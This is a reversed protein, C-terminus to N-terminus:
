VQSALYQRIEDIVEPNAIVKKGSQKVSFVYFVRGGKEKTFRENAARNQEIWQHSMQPNFFSMPKIQFGVLVDGRQFYFDVAYRSDWEQSATMIEIGLERELKSYITEIETQYGDFTRHLVVYFVYEICEDETISALEKQVVESLKVYLKRGIDELIETSIQLGNKKAQVANEFYYHEWERLNGPSCARILESLKGVSSTRNLGWRNFAYNLLHERDFKKEEM